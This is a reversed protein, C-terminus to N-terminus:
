ALPIPEWAAVHLSSRQRNADAERYRVLIDIRSGASMPRDSVRAYPAM